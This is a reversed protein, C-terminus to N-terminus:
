DANLRNGFLAILSNLQSDSYHDIVKYFLNNVEFLYYNDVLEDDSIRKSMLKEFGCLLSLAIVKYQATLEKLNSFYYLFEFDKNNDNRMSILSPKLRAVSLVDELNKNVFHFTLFSGRLNPVTFKNLINNTVEEFSYGLIDIDLDKFNSVMGCASCYFEGTTMNIFFSHTRARCFPCKILLENYCFHKLKGLKLIDSVQSVLEETIHISNNSSM